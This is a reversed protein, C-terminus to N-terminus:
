LSLLLTHDCGCLFFIYQILRIRGHHQWDFQLHRDGYVGRWSHVCDLETHPEDDAAHGTPSLGFAILLAATTYLSGGCKPLLLSTPEMIIADHSIM